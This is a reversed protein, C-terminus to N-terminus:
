RGFSTAYNKQKIRWVFFMLAIALIFVTSPEPVKSAGQYEVFYGIVPDATSPIGQVGSDDAWQGSNIGAHTTGINMYIYGANNPESGGFNTFGFNQGAENGTLWGEPARGGLWAGTFGSFQGQVLSLLFNNEDQSNVVALNGIVNNFVKSSAFINAAQWSNNEGIFPSSVEVFEYYNEEFLIPAANSFFTMLFSTLILLTKNRINNM